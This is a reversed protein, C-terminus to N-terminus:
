SVMENNSPSYQVLVPHIGKQINGSQRNANSAKQHNKKVDHILLAIITKIRIRFIYVPNSGM